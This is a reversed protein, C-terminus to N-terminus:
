EPGPTDTDDGVNQNELIQDVKKALGHHLVFLVVILLISILGVTADALLMYLGKVAHFCFFAGITCSDAAMDPVLRGAM